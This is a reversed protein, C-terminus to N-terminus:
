SGNPTHFAPMDLPAIDPLARRLVERLRSSLPVEDPAGGTRSNNDQTESM